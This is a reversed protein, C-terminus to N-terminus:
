FWTSSRSVKTVTQVETDLSVPASVLRPEELTVCATSAPVCQAASFCGDSLVVSLHTSVDETSMVQAVPPGMDVRRVTRVPQEWLAWRFCDCVYMLQGWHPLLVQVVPIPSLFEKWFGCLTTLLDTSNFIDDSGHNSGNGTSRRRCM